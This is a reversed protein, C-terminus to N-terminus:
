KQIVNKMYEQTKGPLHQLLVKFYAVFAEKYMEGLKDTM